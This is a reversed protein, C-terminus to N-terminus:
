GFDLNLCVYAYVYVEKHGKETKWLGTGEEQYIGYKSTIDSHLPFATGM